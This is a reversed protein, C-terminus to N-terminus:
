APRHPPRRATRRRGVAVSIAPPAPQEEEWALEVRGGRLEVPEAASAAFGRSGPLPEPTSWTGAPSLEAVALQGCESNPLRSQQCEDREATGGPLLSRRRGALRQAAGHALRLRGGNRAAVAGAPRNAHRRRSRLCTGTGRGAAGHLPGLGGSRSRRARSPRYPSQNR